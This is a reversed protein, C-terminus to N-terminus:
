FVYRFVIDFKMAFTEALSQPKSYMVM